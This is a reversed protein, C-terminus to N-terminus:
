IRRVGQSPAFFRFETVSMCVCLLEEWYVLPPTPPVTVTLSLGPPVQGFEVLLSLWKELKLPSKSWSTRCLSILFSPHKWLDLVVLTFTTTSIYNAMKLALNLPNKGTFLSPLIMQDSCHFPTSVEHPPKAKHQTKTLDGERPTFTVPLCDSVLRCTTWQKQCMSINDFM